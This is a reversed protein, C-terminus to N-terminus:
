VDEMAVSDYGEEPCTWKPVPDLWFASGKELGADSREDGEADETGESWGEWV